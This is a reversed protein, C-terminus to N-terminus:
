WPRELYIHEDFIEVSYINFMMAFGLGERIAKRLKYTEFGLYRLSQGPTGLDKVGIGWFL